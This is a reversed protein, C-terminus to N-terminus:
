YDDMGGPPMPAEKKKEPIEAVIAETTLLLSAISSANQIACRVVKTPDLVGAEVLNEYADTQANFGTEATMERVKAVVINGEHGANHAIWRMPEELARRVMDVGVRTDHALGREKALADLAPSCRLLAVGGGPVIGEEVAAKTAHM